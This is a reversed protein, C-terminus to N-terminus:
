AIFLLIALPNWDCAKARHLVSYRAALIRFIRVENQANGWDVVSV